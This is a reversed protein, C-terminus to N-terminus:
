LYINIGLGPYIVDRTCVKIHVSDILVTIIKLKFKTTPIPMRLTGFNKSEELMIKHKLSGYFLDGGM